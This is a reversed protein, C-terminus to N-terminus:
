LSELIGLQKNNNFTIFMQRSVTQEVCMKRRKEKNGSRNNLAFPTM